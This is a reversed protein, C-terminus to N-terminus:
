PLDPLQYLTDLVFLTDQTSDITQAVIKGIYVDLISSLYM